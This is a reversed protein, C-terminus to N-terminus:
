IPEDPRPVLPPVLFYVVREDLRNVGQSLVELRARFIRAAHRDPAVTENVRAILDFCVPQGPPVARFTEAVDDDDFGPRDHAILGLTCALAGDAAATRAEVAAIFAAAADVSEGADALDTVRASVEVPAEVGAVIADVVAQGLGTGDPPVDFVYPEPSGSPDVTGTQRAAESLFHHSAADGSSVGVVRAGLGNLGALAQEWTPAGAVTATPFNHAPADTLIVIVPVSGERFCGYGRGACAPAAPVGHGLPAGTSLAYLAAVHSEPRDNGWRTVYADVARQADDISAGTAGLQYFPRDSAGGYPSYPFDEFGGVGFWSSAVEARVSPLITRSLADRLGDIEDNMSSTTDMLFYVDLTRVQTSLSFADRAPVPDAEYPVLFVFDGRARPHDRADHPDTGTGVELSDYAGDDDTDADFASTGGERELHDALGDADSDTDLFDPVLDGDTDRPPTLVDADGAEDADPIGDRDSDGDLYDPRGDADTDAAAVLGRGEHLDAITDADTDLDPPLRPDPVIGADHLAVLGGDDEPAVGADRPAGGVVPTCGALMVALGCSWKSM